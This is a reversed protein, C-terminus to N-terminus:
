IGTNVRFDHLAITCLVRSYAAATDNDGRPVFSIARFVKTTTALTTYDLGEGSLGTFTSGGADILDFLAGMDAQVPASTSNAFQTEFIVNPDDIVIATANQSGLTTTAGPWYPSYRTIGDAGVWRFGVAIGRLQDGAAAKNILGTTLLKVADGSYIATAYSALVPYENTAGSYPQGYAGRVPLFGRPANINPM